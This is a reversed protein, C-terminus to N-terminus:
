SKKSVANIQVISGVLVAVMAIFYTWMGSGYLSAITPGSYGSDSSIGAPPQSDVGLRILLILLVLSAVCLLTVALGRITQKSLEQKQDKVVPYVAMGIIALSVLPELWLAGMGQILQNNVSALQSGTLSGFFGLNVYPLLFFAILGVFGGVGAILFGTNRKATESSPSSSSFSASAPLTVGPTYSSPELTKMEPSVGGEQLALSPDHKPVSEAAPSATAAQKGCKHCFRADAPNSAGCYTCFM